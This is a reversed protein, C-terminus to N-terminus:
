PKPISSSLVMSLLISQLKDQTLANTVYKLCKHHFIHCELFHGWIGSFHRVYEQLADNLTPMETATALALQAGLVYHNHAWGLVLPGLIRCFVSSIEVGNGLM